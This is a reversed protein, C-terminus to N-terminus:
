PLVRTMVTSDAVLTLDPDGQPFASWKGMEGAMQAKPYPPLKAMTVYEAFAVYGTPENPGAHYVNLWATDVLGMAPFDEHFYAIVPHRGPKLGAWVLKQVSTEVSMGNQHTYVTVTFVATDNQFGTWNTPIVKVSDGVVNGPPAVQLTFPFFGCSVAGAQGKYFAQWCHRIVHRTGEVYAPVVKEVRAPVTQLKVPVPSPFIISDAGGVWQAASASDSLILRVSDAKGTLTGFANIFITDGAARHDVKVFAGLVDGPERNSASAAACALALLSWILIRSRM